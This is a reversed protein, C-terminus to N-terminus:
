AEAPTQPDDGQEGGEDPAPVVVETKSWKQTVTYGGDQKTYTNVVGTSHHGDDKYRNVFNVLPVTAGEDAPDNATVTVARTAAGGDSIEYNAGSYSVETVTFYSGEPFRGLTIVQQDDGPAFEMAHYADYIVNHGEGANASAEDQYGMVHFVVTARVAQAGEEAAPLDTLTKTIQFSGFHTPSEPATPEDPVSGNPKGINIFGNCGIGGGNTNSFNGTVFVCATSRASVKAEATPHADLAMIRNAQAFGNGAPFEDIHYVRYYALPETRTAAELERPALKTGDAKLYLGDNASTGDANEMFGGDAYRKFDLCIKDNEIQLNAAYFGTMSSTFSASPSSFEASVGDLSRALEEAEEETFDSKNVWLYWGLDNARAGGSFAEVAEGSPLTVTAGKKWGRYEVLANGQTPSASMWGTWNYEARHSDTCGDTCDANHGGLMTGYVTARNASFFDNAELPETSGDENQWAVHKLMRHDNYTDYQDYAGKVVESPDFPRSWANDGPNSGKPGPGESETFRAWRDGYENPNTTSNEGLAKNDFIAADQTIVTSNSCAAVGGGFGRADNGTVVPYVVNLFGDSPVFLGGGGYDFETDTRNNTIYTGTTVYSVRGAAKDADKHGATMCFMGGGESAGTRNAAVVTNTMALLPMQYKDEGPMCLGGGADESWNSTIVAGDISTDGMSFIGGGGSVYFGGTKLAHSRNNTITGGTIVLRNRALLSNKPQPEVYIGGGDRRAVNGSVVAEGEMTLAAAKAVYVGGGDYSPAHENAKDDVADGESAVNGAVVADGAITASGAALYIGGGSNAARNGAIVANGSVELTGDAQYIGAGNADDGTAGASGNGAIAANGTIAVTANGAKVGHAGGANTLRGGDMAFAAGDRVEVAATLGAVEIAGASGLSVQEKHRTESTTGSSRNTKTTTVYYTLEHSSADYVALEGARSAPFGHEEARCQSTLPAATSDTVTLKAGSEVTILSAASQGEALSLTHGALDLVVETGAAITLPGEAAIDGELKVAGGAELAKALNAHSNIRADAVKVTVQYVAAEEDAAVAYAGDVAELAEATGTGPQAAGEGELPAATRIVTVSDVKYGEAPQVTFAFTAPAEAEVADGNRYLAGNYSVAGQDAPEIAFKVTAVAPAPEEAQAAPDETVPAEPEPETAAPDAPKAPDDAPDAKPDATAPDAAKPDAESSGAPDESAKGAAAKAEDGSAAPDAPTAPDTKPDVAPVAGKGDGTTALPEQDAPKDAQEIPVPPQEKEMATWSITQNGGAAAFAIGTLSLAACAAIAGIIVHAHKKGWAHDKSAATRTPNDQSGGM